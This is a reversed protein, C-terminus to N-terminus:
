RRCSGALQSLAEEYARCVDDWQYRAAIIEQQRIVQKGRSEGDSLLKLVSAALESPNQCFFGDDGLVERNFVSDFAVVPAGCQMAQLLAPNTGGVSHGHWYAGTNSWLTHLLAQDGIHGLWRLDVDYPQHHAQRMSELRTGPSGSGVIVVPTSPGLRRAADILMDVNNEEVLRAVCLLYKGPELRLPHPLRHLAMSEEAGYPIFTSERAFERRWHDAISVSDAILGDAYHATLRAATRFVTKAVRGWKDREWELGDVNVLTPVKAARFMPLMPGHAVNLVLVADSERLISERASASFGHTLTSSNKGAVGPTFVRRVGEHSSIAFRFRHREERAYVTVDHGRTTLWPALHRVLTEFGGYTSPYGRSGVISIRM